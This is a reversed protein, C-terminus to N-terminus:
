KSPNRQARERQATDHFADARDAFVRSKSPNRVRARAREWALRELKSLRHYRPEM